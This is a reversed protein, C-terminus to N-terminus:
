TKLGFGDTLTAHPVLAGVTAFIIAGDLPEPPMEDSGGAWVVGFSRAFTQTATDGPRKFAYM